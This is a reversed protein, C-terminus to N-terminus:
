TEGGERWSYKCKPCNYIYTHEADQWAPKLIRLYVSKSDCKQCPVDTLNASQSQDLLAIDKKENKSAIVSINGSMKVLYVKDCTRCYRLLNHEKFDVSLEIRSELNKDTNGLLTHCDSCFMSNIINITYKKTDADTTM